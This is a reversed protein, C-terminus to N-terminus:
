INMIEEISRGDELQSIATPLTYGWIIVGVLAIAEKKRQYYVTRELSVSRMCAEDTIKKEAIYYNYIIKHYIEGYEPYVKLRVCADYIILLMLKSDMVNSVRNNFKEEVKEPAFTSLYLYASESTSGYNEKSEFMMFNARSDVAWTVQRYLSLILKAASSIEEFKLNSDAYMNMINKLTKSIRLGIVGYLKNVFKFTQAIIHIYTWNTNYRLNFFLELVITRILFNYICM